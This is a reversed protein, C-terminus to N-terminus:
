RRPGVLADIVLRMNGPGHKDTAHERCARRRELPVGEAALGRLLALAEDDREGDVVTGLEPPLLDRPIRVGVNARVEVAPVDSVVLPCGAALGEVGPIALYTTDAPSWVIDAAGYEAALRDVDAIYGLAHLSPANVQAELPGRGVARLEVLGESALTRCVRLCQAFKESDLRGVFLVVLRDRPPRELPVRFFAADAWHPLITVREAPMLRALDDRSGPSNVFARECSALVRRIAASWRGGVHGLYGNFALFLRPGFFTIPRLMGAANVGNAVLVTPRLVLAVGWAIPALPLSYLINFVLFRRESWRRAAKVYDVVVPLTFFRANPPPDEPRGYSVVLWELEPSARMVKELLAWSGFRTAPSVLLVRRRRRRM